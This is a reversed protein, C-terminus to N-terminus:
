KGIATDDRGFPAGDAGVAVYFIGMEGNFWHLCPVKSDLLLYHDALRLLFPELPRYMGPVPELSYKRALNELELLEGIDINRIYSIL